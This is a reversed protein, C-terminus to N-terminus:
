ADPQRSELRSVAHRLDPLYETLGRWASEVPPCVKFGLLEAPFHNKIDNCLYCATLLNEAASTGGAPFSVMHEVSTSYVWYLIHRDFPRWNPHSPLADPFARSLLKLVDLHVTPRRCHAYRCTYHDRMFTVAVDAPKTRLRRAGAFQAKYPAAARRSELARARAASRAEVLGIYDISRVAVLADAPIGDILALAAHELQSVTADM